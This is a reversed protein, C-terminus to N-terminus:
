PVLVGVFWEAASLRVLNPWSHIIITLPLQVECTSCVVLVREGSFLKDYLEFVFVHKIKM